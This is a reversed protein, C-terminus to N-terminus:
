LTSVRMLNEWPPFKGGKLLLVYAYVGIKGRFERKGRM